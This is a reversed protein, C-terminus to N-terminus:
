DRADGGLGDDVDGDVQARRQVGQLADGREHFHAVFAQALEANGASDVEASPRVARQRSLRMVAHAAGVLHVHVLGSVLLKVIVDDKAIVEAGV